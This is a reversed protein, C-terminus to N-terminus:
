YPLAEGKLTATASVETNQMMSQLAFCSQEALKVINAVKDAPFEAFLSDGRARETTSEFARDQGSKVLFVGTGLALAVLWLIFISRKTM